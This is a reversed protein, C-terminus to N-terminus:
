KNLLQLYQIIGKASRYSVPVTDGNDLYLTTHADDMRVVHQLNVIYSKHCRRFTYDLSPAIKDLNGRYNYTTDNTHLEIGHSQNPVSNIFLLDSAPFPILDDNLLLNVTHDDNLHYLRYHLLRATDLCKYLRQPADPASKEIGDMAETHYQFDLKEAQDTFLTIYGRPDTKRIERSLDIGNLPSDSPLDLIYFSQQPHHWLYDLLEIPNNKTCVIRLDKIRNKRIYDNVMDIYLIVSEDSGGCIYVPLM